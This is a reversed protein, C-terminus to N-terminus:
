TSHIYTPSLALVIEAFLSKDEVANLVAEILPNSDGDNYRTLVGVSTLNSIGIACSQPRALHILGGAVPKNCSLDVVILNSRKAKRIARGLLLRILFAILLNQPFLLARHRQSLLLYQLLPLPQPLLLQLCLLFLLPTLLCPLILM